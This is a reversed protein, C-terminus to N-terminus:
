SPFEVIKWYHEMMDLAQMFSPGAESKVIYGAVNMQFATAKDNQDASTTLVFVVTDRLESDNRLHELFEIGNMRPMNLDLIVLYPRRLKQKGGKGRMIDLAEQGDRAEIIPNSIRMTKLSRKISIRDVEDDEVLLISIDSGSM